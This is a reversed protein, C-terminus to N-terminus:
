LFLAGVHRRRRCDLHVVAGSVQTGTGLHRCHESGHHVRRGAARQQQHVDRPALLHCGVPLAGASWMRLGEKHPLHSYYGEWARRRFSPPTLGNSSSADPIKVGQPYDSGEREPPSPHTERLPEVAVLRVCTMSLYHVGHRLRCLTGKQYYLVIGLTQMAFGVSWMWVSARYELLIYALGLVTTTIDLWHAVIFEM